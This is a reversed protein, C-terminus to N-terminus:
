RRCIRPTASPEPIPIPVVQVIKQTSFRRGVIVEVDVDDDTAAETVEAGPIAAAVLEAMARAEGAYRVVTRRYRLRNANAVDVVNVPGSSTTTAEKLKAAARAAAGAKFTGNYVGVRITSPEIDPVEDAKAPSENRAVADFLLKMAREDPLVVSAGGVTAVGLNPAIYAEYHEPDFSRMDQALERLGNITTNQDTELNDGAVRALRTIRSPNLFTSISTVKDIASALFRQQNRIREFDGTAFHRSRVFRIARDGDFEVMGLEERTIEIGTQRDFPIPETICLEVGGIANVLDRFGAINVQVYQNIQLGTLERITRVVTGAGTELASNIKDERGGGVPVYLDRPFQVMTIFDARPDVHALILTDARQGPLPRAALEAQEKETLGRRSDSGVILANFPDLEDEKGQVGQIETQIKGQTHYYLWTAWGAVGAVVLLLALLGWQWWRRMHMRRRKREAYGRVTGEWRTASFPDSSKKFPNLRM